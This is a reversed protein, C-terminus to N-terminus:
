RKLQYFWYWCQQFYKAQRKNYTKKPSPNIHGNFAMSRLNYEQVHELTSTMLAKKALKRPSIEFTLKPIKPKQRM